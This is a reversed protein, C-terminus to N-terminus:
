ARELVELHMRALEALDGGTLGDGGSLVEAPPRPELLRLVTRFSRRAEERQGRDQLLLGLHYHALVFGRDLYLARRLAQVAEGPRGVQEEMLGLYLHSWPSLREREALDRALAVAEDMRGHDALERVAAAGPPPGPPLAARPAAPAPPPPLAPPQWPAAPAPEAAKQYLVTGPRSVRRFSRFLDVDAEAHGVLLWGGDALTQEFHHALRAVIDREFYIMVNRCLILDFGFLGDVLSPFPHRVLNHFQFHVGQRYRDEVVWQEGQRAFLGARDEPPTSRLSWESFSAERARALFERNVDTGLIHLDWGALLAGLDRRLLISLTYPEAGTACGASWIRLRRTLRNREVLDPLVVEKLAELQEPQRFFYTEGITLERVLEDLEAEGHLLELYESCDSLGLIGMRRAVRAALDRERTAYYALGTLAIM